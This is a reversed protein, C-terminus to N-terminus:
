NLVFETIIEEFTLNILFLGTEKKCNIFRKDIVDLKERDEILHLEFISFVKLLSSIVGKNKRMINATHEM